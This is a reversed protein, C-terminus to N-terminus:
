EPGAPGPAEEIPRERIQRQPPILRPGEDVTALLDATAAALRASIGPHHSGGTAAGLELLLRQCEVAHRALERSRAATRQMLEEAAGEAEEFSRRASVVIAQAAEIASQIIARADREADHRIREAAELAGALAEGGDGGGARRDVPAARLDEVVTRLLADVDKRRYGLPATRFTADAIDDPTIAARAEDAGDGRWPEVDTAM